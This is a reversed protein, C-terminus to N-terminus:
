IIRCWLGKGSVRIEPGESSVGSVKWLGTARKRGRFYFQCWHGGLGTAKKAGAFNSSVGSVGGFYFQCWLGREIGAWLCLILLHAKHMLTSDRGHASVQAM